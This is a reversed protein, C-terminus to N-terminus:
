AEIIELIEHAMYFRNRSKRTMEKVIGCKILYNMGRKIIPYNTHLTTQLHPINIYPNEFFRDLLAYSMSTAHVNTLKEKYSNYLDILKRVRKSTDLSMDKVGDLFFNIWPTYDGTQRVQMLLDYYTKKNRDFFPSLYLIPEELVGLQILYLLILSRGLRGNGDEFPHITEFYYHMIAIKILRSTEDEQDMKMFLEKMLPEVYKEHPPVFEALEISRGLWNQCKRYEGILRNSGRVKQLLLYHMHNVLDKNVKQGKQIKELAFDTAKLFNRVEQLELDRNNYKGAEGMFVDTLSVRTGEIKSSIVAERIKYGSVFLKINGINRTLGKLEGLALNAENTKKFLAPDLTLQQNTPFPNPVFYNYTIPKSDISRSCSEIKGANGNFNSIDM